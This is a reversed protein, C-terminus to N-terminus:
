SVGFEKNIFDLVEDASAAKLRDTVVEANSAAGPAQGSGELLKSLLTQLRGTVDARVELDGAVVGPLSRELEELVAIAGAGPGAAEAVEEPRAQARLYRALALPTPYDFVMTAPLRLGTGATLRNRLEVATLSDFGLDRFPRAADVTSSSTHGLVAAAQGRVLDVLVREQEASSLGSLRQALESGAADADGERSQAADALAKVVEPLGGILASPRRLTFVPAFRAWDVDTVTLLGEGDALAQDLARIALDPNMVRVGLRQLQAGAEGSGMGGGGWLGWAVSTAPLGLGRRHEALGDLYANAASYGAQMGSGWTAAGSSFLVFRELGIGLDRTLEHLHWAGAAKASLAPVLDEIRMEQMAGGQGVGAAHFVAKLPAQVGDSSGPEGSIRTLLGATQERDAIDCALVRVGSGAGALEAAVRAVGAGSAGSRSALVIERAGRGALWRAVHGGVGGTGGTVLVSGGPLVWSARSGRSVEAARVLRRGLVGWSRVAVQDERLVLGQVAGGGVAVAGDAVAGVVSAGLVACLRAASDGDLVSPLDVLGGWREPHELGVVRGLGWVQAQVPHGPAETPSAAVAGCTLVWLPAGIGLDGLAQVLALTGAVGAPVMPAAPLPAEDLALLSVVGAPPTGDPAALAAGESLAAALAAREYQGSDLEVVRVDAGRAELAEVVAIAQEADGGRAAVVLWTGALRSSGSDRSDGVPVWTVRYRWGAVASDDRERRRWSALAPLMEGIRGSDEVGLANALTAADGGEVATWFQAEAASERSGFAGGVGLAAAVRAPEPWFHQHQFAYTPLEVRQAPTLIRSWDVFIGRVHAEAFATLLRAAGGEERKLSGVVVPTTVPATGATTAAQDTGAEEQELAAGIAATLVPHPSVEVFSSYGAGALARVAREFEVTSRLSAYWYQADLETGSLWEGTMASVMAVRGASPAVAALDGEIEGRLAEVQVSHSAYDVPLMRIRVGDAECVAALEELVSVEGSVVTAAPGNVAAVSVRGDFGAIRERVADVPEAISLM